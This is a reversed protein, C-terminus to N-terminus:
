TYILSSLSFSSGTHVILLETLFMVNKRFIYKENFKYNSKEKKSLKGSVSRFAELDPPLM